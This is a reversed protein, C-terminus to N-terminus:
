HCYSTDGKHWVAGVPYLVRMVRKGEAEPLDFDCLYHLKLRIAPLMFAVKALTSEWTGKGSALTVCQPTLRSLTSCISFLFELLAQDEIVM